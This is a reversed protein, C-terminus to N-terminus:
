QSALPVAGTDEDGVGIIRLRVVYQVDLEDRWVGYIRNARILRPAFKPPMTVVGLYRGEADFVDWMPAGSEEIFNYDELEEESLESAPQVHQVWISGRPGGLVASFAPFFEGFHVIQRLQALAQPPVGAGTWARELFEMVVRRDTEEVPKREFPMSVVRELKGSQGYLGVRYEDNVGHILRGEATIDWISEPSYLNIEPTPGGLNLTGGSPFKFVTDTVIGNTGYLVIADMSDRAPANPLSLPRVQCAVIGTSTGRWVMPLGKELEIPFSGAESGDPGYLNVRRNTLDPVFLTDGSAVVLFTLGAGLEGPGAGPRGITQEYQGAPTFVRINQAQADAVYIRDRSDVAIFGVQGFQYEPEGEISGIRLEEELTWQSSTTWMGVATNSVIAVGASDTITGTWRDGGSCAAAVLLVAASAMLKTCRM